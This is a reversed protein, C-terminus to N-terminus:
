LYVLYAAFSEKPSSASSFLNSDLPRIRFYIYVQWIDFRSLSHLSSFRLILSSFLFTYVPGVGKSYVELYDIPRNSKPVVPVRQAFSFASLDLIFLASIFCFTLVQDKRISFSQNITMRRIGKQKFKSKQNLSCLFTTLSM